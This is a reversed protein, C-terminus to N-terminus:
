FENCHMLPQFYKSHFQDKTPEKVTPNFASFYCKTIWVPVIFKITKQKKFKAHRLEESDM